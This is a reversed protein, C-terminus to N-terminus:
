KRRAVISPPISTRVRIRESFNTSPVETIHLRRKLKALAKKMRFLAAQSSFNFFKGITPMSIGEQYYWKIVVWEVPSLYQKIHFWFEARLMADAPSHNDIADVIDTHEDNLYESLALHKPRATYEGRQFYKVPIYWLVTVLWSKFNPSMKPDYTKVARQVGQLVKSEIWNYDRIPGEIKSCVFRVGAALYIKILDNFSRNDHYKFYHAWLEIVTM